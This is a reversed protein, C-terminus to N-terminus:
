YLSDCNMTMVGSARIVRNGHNGIELCHLAKKM